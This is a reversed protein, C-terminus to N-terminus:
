RKGHAKHQLSVKYMVAFMDDETWPRRGAQMELVVCGVSWIDIKANYGQKNNHLMEPAMWFVSGQMATGEHNNYVHEPSSTFEYETVAVPFVYWQAQFHWLRLDQM